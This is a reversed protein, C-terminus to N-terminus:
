SFRETVKKVAASSMAMITWQPNVTLSTPFLSADAVFVNDFGEVQFNENVVRKGTFQSGAGAMLNGGQPHATGMSLDNIRLPFDNFSRTFDNVSKENLALEIGPRTPLLARTAGALKGLQILTNLSYKINEIDKQDLTWTFAQGNLIDAKKQVVGNPQSGLLGGFILLNKYHNMFSDRRDFFFPVSSLAYTAPPSFYTEFASRNYPDLAGLTIQDGDYAKLEEAFDLTLPFAFNCSLRQGININPLESRMLFHSSAITGGAVIVAKRVKVKTLLGNNARLLVYEAKRQSGAIFRVATMNSVVKIGKAEAWPIYTELMSRKRMRKNGINWNGDGNNNISNTLVPYHENLRDKAELTNNYKKVADKFIGSVVQNLGKSGLPKINLEEEIKRYEEDIHQLDIGYENQWLQKIVDPMKFCVANNVVTSGGLCEGQMITMTSKKTQQLGGEKYIKNIMKIESDHFDQLPQYRNGREVLLIGSPDGVSCALRYAATAGGAGSGIVIYDVEDPIEAERVPTTVRPAVLPKDTASNSPKWNNIDLHDKPLDAVKKFPPDYSATDSQLRDRADVPVFGIKDQTNLYSYHAFGVASSLTTGIQYAFDALQPLFAQNRELENRFFYKRLFYRQEDRNMTSFPPHFGYLFNLVNEFLGFPLNMLGRKRGSIGGAYEDLSKMVFSQQKDDGGFFANELAIINIAASPSLTNVACDSKYYLKRTAIMIFAILFGVTAHLMLYWDASANYNDRTVFLVGSSLKGGIIWLLAVISSALLSFILSNHLYPRLRVRKVLLFAIASLTAYLTITNGITPDPSGFVIGIGYESNIFLRVGLITVAFLLFFYGLSKYLVRIITMPVSFNIPFDHDPAFPFSDKRYKLMVWLFALIMVGDVVASALLFDPYNAGLPKFLYFVLAYLSSVLHGIILGLCTHFRLSKNYAGTFSLMVMIAMKFYSNIALAPNSYIVEILQSIQQPWASLGLAGLILIILFVLYFMGLTRLIWFGADRKPLEVDEASWEKRFLNKYEDGTPKEPFPKKAFLLGALVRAMFLSGIGLIIAYLSGSIFIKLLGSAIHALVPPELYDKWTFSEGTVGADSYLGILFYPVFFVLFVFGSSAKRFAAAIFSLLLSNLILVFFTTRDNFNLSGQFVALVILSLALNSAM